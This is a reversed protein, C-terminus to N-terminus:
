KIPCKETVSILLVLLVFILGIIYVAAFSVTNAEGFLVEILNYEAM